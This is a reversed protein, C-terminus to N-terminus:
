RRRNEAADLQDEETLEDEVGAAVAGALLLVVGIIFLATM